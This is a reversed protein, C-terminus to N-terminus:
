KLVEIMMEAIEATADRTLGTKDVKGDKDLNNGKEANAECVITVAKNIVESYHIAGIEEQLYEQMLEISEEIGGRVEKPIPFTNYSCKVRTGQWVYLTDVFADVRDSLTVGDWFEKIEERLMKLELNFDLKLKNRQRNFETVAILM